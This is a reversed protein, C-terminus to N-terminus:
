VIFKIKNYNYVCTVSSTMEKKVEPFIKAVQYILAYDGADGKMNFKELLEQVLINSTLLCM